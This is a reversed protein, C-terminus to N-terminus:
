VNDTSLLVTLRNSVFEVNRQLFWRSYTLPPMHGCYEGELHPPKGLRWPSLPARLHCAFVMRNINKFPLNLNKNEVM